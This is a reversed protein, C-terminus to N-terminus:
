PLVNADQLWVNGGRIGHEISLVHPKLALVGGFDSGVGVLLVVLVVCGNKESLRAGIRKVM